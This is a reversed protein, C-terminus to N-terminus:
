NIPMIKRNIIIISWIEMEGLYETLNKQSVWEAEMKEPENVNFYASETELMFALGLHVRGVDNSNNNIIGCFKPGKLYSVTVEENLERLMGGIIIDGCGDAAENENIHGGAGISLMGHLRAENQKNLRKFVLYDEGHKIIIYPIIQKYSFDNECASRDLFIHRSRIAELIIDANETFFGTEDTFGNAKLIDTEVAMVKEM